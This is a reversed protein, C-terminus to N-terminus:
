KKILKKSIVKENNKIQLIYMGAPLREVNQIALSNVGEYVIFNEKRLPKGSLNSLVAEVRTSSSVVVEFDVEHNFPNIVNSLGFDIRKDNLQIVRSYKKKNADNRIAIRYWAKDSIAVPDTFSYYNNEANYNKNGNVTGVSTFTSGDNSREISYYVPENEKSTVWSLNANDAVLKGSFSL